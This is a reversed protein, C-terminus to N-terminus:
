LRICLHAQSCIASSHKHTLNCCVTSLFCHVLAEPKQEPCPENTPGVCCELCWVRCWQQYKHICAAQDLVIATGGKQMSFGRQGDHKLLYTRGETVDVLLDTKPMHEFHGWSSSAFSLSIDPILLGDLSYVVSQLCLCSLWYTCM